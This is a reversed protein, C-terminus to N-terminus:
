LKSCYTVWLASSDEGSGLGNGIDWWSRLGERIPRLCAEVQGTSHGLGAYRIGVPVKPRQDVDTPDGGARTFLWDQLHM